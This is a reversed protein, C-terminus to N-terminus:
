RRTSDGVVVSHCIGFRM